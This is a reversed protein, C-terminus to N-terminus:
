PYRDNTLSMFPLRAHWICRLLSCQCDSRTSSKSRQADCHISVLEERFISRGRRWDFTTWEQLLFLGSLDRDDDRGISFNLTSYVKRFNPRSGRSSTKVISREVRAPVKGAIMLADFACFPTFYEPWYFSILIDQYIKEIMKWKARSHTLSTMKLSLTEVALM